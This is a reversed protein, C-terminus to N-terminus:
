KLVNEIAKYLRKYEKKIADTTQNDKTGNLAMRVYAESVKFSEAVQKIVLARASDYKKRSKRNTM